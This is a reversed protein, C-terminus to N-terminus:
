SSRRATWGSRAPGSTSRWGTSPWYRPATGEGVRNNMRVARKWAMEVVADLEEPHTKGCRTRLLSVSQIFERRNGGRWQGALRKLLEVAPDDWGRRRELRLLGSRVDVPCDRQELDGAAVHLTQAIRWAPRQPDLRKWNEQTREQDNQYFASLGRAFLRWESMPSQRPIERLRELAEADEGREIHLLSERVALVQPALGAQAPPPGDPDLIADDALKVLLSPDEALVADADAGRMGVLVKLRPIRESVEPLKPGFELLQGLVQQAEPLLKKRRLQEIRAVYCRELFERREPSNQQRYCQRADKLAAKADGKDFERRAREFLGDAGLKRKQKRNKPMLSM